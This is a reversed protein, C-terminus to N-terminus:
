LVITHRHRDHIQIRHQILFKCASKSRNDSLMLYYLLYSSHESLICVTATIICNVIELTVTHEEVPCAWQPGFVRWVGRRGRLQKQLPLDTETYTYSWQSQFTKEFKRKKSLVNTHQVDIKLRISADRWASLCVHEPESPCAGQCTWACVCVCLHTHVCLICGTNDTDGTEKRVTVVTPQGRAINLSINLLRWMWFLRPPNTWYCVHLFCGFLM